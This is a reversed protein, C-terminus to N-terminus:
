SGQCPSGGPIPTKFPIPSLCSYYRGVLGRSTTYCCNLATFPHTCLNYLARNYNLSNTPKFHATKVKPETKILLYRNRHQTFDCFLRM